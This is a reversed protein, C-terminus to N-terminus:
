IIHESKLYLFIIFLIAIILYIIIGKNDLLFLRSYTVREIRKMRKQYKNFNYQKRANEKAIRKRTKRGSKRIAKQLGKKTMRM